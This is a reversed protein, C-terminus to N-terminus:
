DVKKFDKPIEFINAPPPTLKIETLEMQSKVGSPGGRQGVYSTESKIPMGLSEDIWILSEVYVQENSTDGTNMTETSSVRYKRTMRGNINEQGLNEYTAGTKVQNLMGELPNGATQVGGTEKGDAPKNLKLNGYEKKTMNLIFQGNTTQLFVIKEGDRDFEVRRNVGDRAITFVQQPLEPMKEGLSAKYVM